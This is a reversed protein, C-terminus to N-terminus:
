EIYDYILPVEQPMRSGTKVAKKLVREACKLKAGDNAWIQCFPEKEAIADGVRKNLILGVSPDIRDDVKIRGAGLMMVAQGIKDAEIREIFGSKELHFDKKIQAQPLLDVDDIVKSNGGQYEIMQRLKEAARGSAIVDKAKKYGEEFSKVKDALELLYGALVLSVEKLASENIKGTLIEIAERVELANGIMMGLPEDMNTVLAATKRGMMKGINVMTEALVVADESNKMFAGSGVKVDLLIVDSGGAIKKSMVSSAILPLSDVTDTVDRLAYLKKDAPVLNKTQGVVALKIKNVQKIFDQISLDIKFGPISELKDLTGGTHGLGRGSMKAVPVGCAAVVPAVILTTTDGVGGTSHKDAKIGEIGSLDVKDGSAAMIQTLNKIEENDMGQFFVSMLFVSMQYDPIEGKIYGSVLFEIEKHTMKKGERKKHILDQVRM